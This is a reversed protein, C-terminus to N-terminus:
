KYISSIAFYAMANYPKKFEKQKNKINCEQQEITKEKIGEIERQTCLIIANETVSSTTITAKNNFGYTIIKLEIDNYDTQNLVTDTNIVLYNSNELIKKLYKKNKHMETNIVVTDFKVNKINEINSEKIQILEIDLNNPTLMNKITEYDQNEAVVGVFPM